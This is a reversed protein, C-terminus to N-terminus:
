NLLTLLKKVVEHDQDDKQIFLAAGYLTFRVSTIEGQDICTSCVNRLRESNLTAVLNLVKDLKRM